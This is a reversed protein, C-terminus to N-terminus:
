APETTDESTVIDVLVDLADAFALLTEGIDDVSKELSAIRHSLYRSQNKEEELDFEAMDLRMKCAIIEAQPTMKVKVRVRKKPPKSPM